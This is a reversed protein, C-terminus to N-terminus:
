IMTIDREYCLSREKLVGLDQSSCAICDGKGPSFTATTCWSMPEPWSGIFLTLAHLSCCTTVFNRTLSPTFGALCLVDKFRESATLCPELM